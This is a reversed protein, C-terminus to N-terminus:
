SYPAVKVLDHGESSPEWIIISPPLSVFSWCNGGLSPRNQHATGARSSGAASAKWGADAGVGTVDQQTRLPVGQANFESGSVAKQLIWVTVRTKM